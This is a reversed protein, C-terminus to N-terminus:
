AVELDRTESYAFETRSRIGAFACTVGASLAADFYNKSCLQKLERLAESTFPKKSVLWVGVVLKGHFDETLADNECLEYVDVEFNDDHHESPQRSSPLSGVGARIGEFAKDAISFLASSGEDPLEAGAAHGGIHFLISVHVQTVAHHFTPM